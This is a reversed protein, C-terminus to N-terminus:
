IMKEKTLNKPLIVPSKVSRVVARLNRIPHTRLIAELDM